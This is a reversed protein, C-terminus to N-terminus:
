RGNPANEPKTVTASVNKAVLCPSEIVSPASRLPAFRMEWHSFHVHAGAISTVNVGFLQYWTPVTHLAIPMKTMDAIGIPDSVNGTRSATIATPLRRFEITPM